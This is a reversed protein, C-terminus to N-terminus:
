SLAISFEDDGANTARTMLFELMDTQLGNRDGANPDQILQAAPVAFTFINNATDGVVHSIAQTTLTQFTSWWNYTAVSVAEPAVKVTPRRKGIYASRYGTSQVPSSNDVGLVDEVLQVDNGLDYEIDPIRYTNGGVTFATAIRPAVATVYSPAPNAADIIPLQIGKFTWKIRGKQGRKCTIVASGMAGFMGWRKGSRWECITVTQNASTFPTFTGATNQMGCAPLLTSAWYPVSGSGGTGVLETEFTCTASRAGVYQIIQSISAGEAEREVIETENKLDPDFVRTVCGSATPIVPTGTTTELAFGLVRQRTLKVAADLAM